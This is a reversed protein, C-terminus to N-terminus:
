DSGGMLGELYEVTEAIDLRQQEGTIEREIILAGEYGIQGLRGLFKPFDVRGQGVQVECGLKMPDTPYHGDKVHVSRVHQGFIDLSDIPNGKGYMLLNAPDLNVGLNDTGVEEILRLMTVPTEQGTEFWFELGLDRYGLALDRVMAVVEVFLEEHPNEPVFGLHTVVADVGLEAAFQGARRLAAARQDRYERPVLGLTRPGEVLNWERPGPWGAWLSDIRVDRTEAEARLDAAPVRHYLDPEWCSLQCANLELEAVRELSSGDATLSTIVGIDWQTM